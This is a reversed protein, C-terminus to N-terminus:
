DLDKWLSKYADRNYVINKYNAVGFANAKEEYLSSQKSSLISDEIQKGVTVCDDLTAGYTVIYDMPLVGETAFDAATLQREGTVNGDEDYTVTWAETDYPVCTAVLVFIGAYAGDTSGSEIFNDGYVFFNGETAGDKETVEYSGTGNAILARAHETFSDIYSLDTDAGEPAVLYGLGGNNSDSSTSGTDDGVLYLWTTAMERIWYVSEVHTLYHGDIGDDVANTIARFSNYIQQVIGVTDGEGFAPVSDPLYAMSPCVTVNYVIEFTGKEENYAFDVIQNYGAGSTTPEENICSHNPCTMPDCSSSSGCTHNECIYDPDYAPNSVKVQMAALLEDRKNYLVQKNGNYINDNVMETLVALDDDSMRLLINAVFGYRSDEATYKHYYTTALADTLASEYTADDTFTERNKAVLADFRTQVEAQTVSAASGVVRELKTILLTKMENALYYEYSTHLSALDEAVDAVATDLYKDLYDKKATESYSSLCDLKKEGSVILARFEETLKGDATLARPSMEAEPLDYDPDYDADADETADERVPRPETYKVWKAYLTTNASLVTSFDFENGDTCAADTYWGYFTYGDRTPEAPEVAATGSKIREREVTSGGQSDFRVTIADSGKYEEYVGTTGTNGTNANNNAVNILTELASNIASLIDDNVNEVARNRESGSLLASIETTAASRSGGDAENLARVLEDKAFLVLLERQALSQLLYDATAEYTMGYYNHYVYAYSNFSMSLEYKYVYATQGEYSVSAVVQNADREENLKIIENCGALTGVCVSLLLVLIMAVAIRKKM